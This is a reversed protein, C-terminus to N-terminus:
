VLSRLTQYPIARYRINLLTIPMIIIIIIIIIIILTIIMIIM